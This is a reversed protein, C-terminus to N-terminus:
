VPSDACNGTGNLQAISSNCTWTEFWTSSGNSAGVFTPVTFNFGNRNFVTPDFISFGNETTGNEFVLTLSNTYPLTADDAKNLGGSHTFTGNTAALFAAETPGENGDATYSGGTGNCDM